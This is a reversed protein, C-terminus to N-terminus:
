NDGGYINWGYRWNAEPHIEGFSNAGIGPIQNRTMAAVTARGLIRVDGYAGGNLFMQCFIAMDYASSLLGGAAAPWDWMWEQDWHASTADAPCRILQPRIENPVIFYTNRIGLPKFIRERAFEAISRGSIRRFIEGLLTYNYNSYAMEEGLQKSLPADYNAIRYEHIRPHQNDDRPPLDDDNAHTEFPNTLSEDDIGSTHTLLHHVLVADKGDVRFEPIYDRVPRNLGLRGDEVLAMICTATVPKTISALTFISDHQLPSFDANPTRNGFAEDIVIVGKRAVIAATATTIGGDVWGATLERVRQVKQAAMGAEEPTGTTLKPAIMTHPTM